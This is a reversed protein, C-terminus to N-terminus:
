RGALQDQQYEKVFNLVADEVIKGYAEAPTLPAYGPPFDIGGVATHMVHRFYQDKKPGGAPRYSFNFQYEDDVIGGSFGLSIGTKFGVARATSKDGVNNVVVRLVSPSMQDVKFVRTSTLVREVHARLRGDSEERPKGDRQFQVEVRVPQAKETVTLDKYGAKYFAPDAYSKMAPACATLMLAGALLLLGKIQPITRM